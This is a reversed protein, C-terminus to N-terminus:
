DRRPLRENRKAAVAQPCRFNVCFPVFAMTEKPPPVGLREERERRMAYNVFVQFSAPEYHTMEYVSEQFNQALSRQHDALPSPLKRFTSLALDRIYNESSEPPLSWWQRWFMDPGEALVFWTLWSEGKRIARQGDIGDGWDFIWPEFEEGVNSISTRFSASLLTFMLRYDKILEDSLSKMYVLRRELVDSEKLLLTELKYRSPLLQKYRSVDKAHVERSINSLRRLVRWGNAVRARVEDGASDAAPIGYGFERLTNGTVRHCDVLIAALQQPILGKLWELTYKTRDELPKLLHDPFTKRAVAPAITLICEVTLNRLRSHVLRLALLEDICCQSCIEILIDDPLGLFSHGEVPKKRRSLSLM